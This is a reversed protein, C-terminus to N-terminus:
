DGVRELRARALQKRLDKHEAIREAAQADANAKANTECQEVDKREGLNKAVKSRCVRHIARGIRDNLEQQASPRALDLDSTRVEVTREDAMAPTAVALMGAAIAFSLLAKPTAMLKM